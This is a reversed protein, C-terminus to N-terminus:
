GIIIAAATSGGLLIGCFVEAYATPGADTPLYREFRWPLEYAVSMLAGFAAPLWWGHFGLAALAIATPGGALIGRKVNALFDGWITGEHRGADIADMTSPLVGLWATVGVLFGLWWPQVLSAVAAVIGMPVGWAVIRATGIGWGIRDGLWGGRIRFGIGGVIAGFLIALM